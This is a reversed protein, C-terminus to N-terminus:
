EDVLFMTRGFIPQLNPARRSFTRSSLALPANMAAFNALELRSVVPDAVPNTTMGRLIPGRWVEYLDSVASMREGAM